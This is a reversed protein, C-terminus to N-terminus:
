VRFGPIILESLESYSLAWGLCTVPHVGSFASQDLAGWPRGRTEQWHGRGETRALGAGWCEVPSGEEGKPM